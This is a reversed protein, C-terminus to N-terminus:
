HSNYQLILSMEIYNQLSKQQQSRFSSKLLSFDQESAASSPQMLLIKHPATAWCPLEHENRHWWQLIYFAPDPDIVKAQYSPLEQKFDNLIEQSDLFPFAKISNVAEADPQIDKLRHPSFYRAGKFALLMDKLTSDFIKNFYDLGPQVCATAYNIINQKYAQTTGTSERSHLPRFVGQLLSKDSGSCLHQAVAIVNPTNGARIAAKVTEVKEYGDM